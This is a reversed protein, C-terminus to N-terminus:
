AGAKGAKGAKRKIHEGQYKVGKGKYPEPPRLSRLEAAVQGVVQKDAGSIKVETNKDVKATIGKPLKYPINHSYGLIMNLVDGKLEAKYGVGVIELNKEFGTSVGIIMNAILSRTLGHLSRATRSDDARTVNAVAGEVAVKVEDRVDISLTEKAGKVTVTSGSVNVTVGTPIEIPQKGIRSM